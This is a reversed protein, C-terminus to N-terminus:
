PSSRSFKAASAEVGTGALAAFNERLEGYPAAVLLSPRDTAGALTRYAREVAATVEEAPVDWTDAVLAPEDLQVWTAGAGALEALWAAYVAVLDDLRELPGPGD